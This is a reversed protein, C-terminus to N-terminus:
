TVAVRSLYTELAGPGGGGALLTAVYSEREARIVELDWVCVSESGQAPRWAGGGVSVFVRLPLENERDWWALVVYDAGRGQHSIVFGASCRGPAHAPSPLSRFALALGPEFRAADVPRDGYAITYTKLHFGRETRVGTFRTARPHYPEFPKPPAPPSQPAAAAAAYSEGGLFHLSVYPADGVVRSDHPVPPIHFLSGAALTLVRGDEFEATATGSLVMGVHELPCLPTGAQPGVHASWRWGPEYTARGVTLPGLRVIEFRGKEFVRTEDPAEFRKLIADIM